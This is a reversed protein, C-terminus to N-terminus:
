IEASCVTKLTSNNTAFVKNIFAKKVGAKGRREITGFSLPSISNGIDLLGKILKGDM